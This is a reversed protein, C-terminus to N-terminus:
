EYPAIGDATVLVLKDTIPHPMQRYDTAIQNRLRAVTEEEDRFCLMIDRNPIGAIFPSGLHERLRAHLSPLLIRTADFGDMTQFLILNISGDEDQAAHAAIEQSRNVLNEMAKEHVTELSVTWRDLTAAPIYWLSRQGDVAYATVLGPVLPQSLMMQIGPIDERLIVPMIREALEEFNANLDPTGESARVLELVWQEIFVKSQEPQLMASRYLNELSAIQGNVKLSFSERGARAVKAAPFRGKAVEIVQQVFQERTVSPM